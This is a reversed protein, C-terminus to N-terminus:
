GNNRREVIRKIRANQARWAEVLEKYNPHDEMKIGWGGPVQSDKQPVEDYVVPDQSDPRRNKPPAEILTRMPLKVAEGLIVAEGTKLM